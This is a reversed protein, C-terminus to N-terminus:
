KGLLGSANSINGILRGRIGVVIRKETITPSSWRELGISKKITANSNMETLTTHPKTAKLHNWRLDRKSCFCHPKSTIVLGFGYVSWDFTADQIRRAGTTSSFASSGGARLVSSSSVSACLRARRELQEVSYSRRFPSSEGDRRSSSIAGGHEGHQFDGSKPDFPAWGSLRAFFLGPM